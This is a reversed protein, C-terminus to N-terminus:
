HIYQVLTYIQVIYVAYVKHWSLTCQSGTFTSMNTLRDHAGGTHTQTRSHKHPTDRCERWYERSLIGGARVQGQDKTGPHNRPQHRESDASHWWQLCASSPLLLIVFCLFSFCHLNYLYAESICAFLTVAAQTTICVSCAPTLCVSKCSCCQPLLSWRIVINFNPDM